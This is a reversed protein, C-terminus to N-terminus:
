EWLSFRQKIRSQDAVDMVLCGLRLLIETGQNIHEIRHIGALIILVVLIRQVDHKFAQLMLLGLVESDPLVLFVLQSSTHCLTRSM